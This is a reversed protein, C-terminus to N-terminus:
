CKKLINPNSMYRKVKEPSMAFLTRAYWLGGSTVRIAVLVHDALVKIYEISGNSPHLAVYDPSALISELDGFYKQFDDYHDQKMHSVNSDGLYIETDPQVSLGLLNIVKEDIKGVIKRAMAKYDGTILLDAPTAAHHTESLLSSQSPRM